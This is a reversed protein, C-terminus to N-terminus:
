KETMAWVGDWDGPPPAKSLQRCREQYIASLRDGPSAAIARDFWTSAAEFDAERYRALGEAFLGITEMMNPFSADDHYDLSEFISVPQTKGKVIVKDVERLRYVGNLGSATLDSLLIRAGYQKCASELRAALNVGDGIITYDMRKPTGINGAVVSNTNLGIGMDILPEGRGERETNWERLSRVMAIAARLARDEDDEAAVPLGFVAMIADGIFKDLMGSHESICDVMREFYDNLMAVTGHPGLEESITTFSRIDSFLVTAVSETGGLIEEGSDSSLLRDALDPDMYRSLTSKVRKETSIDEIMVLTGLHTRDEALLPLVTVNASVTEDGVRLEADMALETDLTEGVRKMRNRLWRNEEGFLDKSSKGVVQSDESRLIRAAAANCTQATGDDDFTIVGNSMSQLMSDNYNKMAQVDAFLKANELSTAIQATFARLRSEDDSTFPGGRKNLAQTVGIAKGAKNFVPVCLISRTFFGTQRDFTPNFRLDAYAYPIRISQGTTFVAGAIGVHNPFRIVTDLQEGIYSFLEGTKEDNLFLTSREADLMRTSESIVKGLLRGLELESTLDSVLNLFEIERQRSRTMHELLQVSQLTIACQSTMGELMALDDEDFEGDLKNLIEIVGITDGKASKVPACLISETRFGTDQDVERAFRPDAYADPVIEGDGSRYVAGVIGRDNMVRIEQAGSEGQRRTYLEGTDDDHVFLSGARAGLEKMAASVLAELIDDLSDLAAVQRSLDLMLRLQRLQEAREAGSPETM